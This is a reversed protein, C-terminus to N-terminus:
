FLEVGRTVFFTTRIVELGEMKKFLSSNLTIKKLELSKFRQAHVSSCHFNIVKCNKSIYTEAVTFFLRVM